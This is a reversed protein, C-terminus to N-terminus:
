GKGVQFVEEGYIDRENIIVVANHWGPCTGNTITKSAEYIFLEGVDRATGPDFGYAKRTEKAM